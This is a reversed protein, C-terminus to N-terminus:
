IKIFQSSGGMYYKLLNLHVGWTINYLTIMLSQSNYNKESPGLFNLFHLFGIIKM